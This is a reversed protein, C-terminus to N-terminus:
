QKSRLTKNIEELIRNKNLPKLIYGAPHQSLVEMIKEKDSVGTLFLVPIKATVDVSKLMQFVQLGNMQPMEYDLLILDVHEQRVIELAKEGTTACLLKFYDGIMERINRLVLTSDDVVLITQQKSKSEDAGGYEALVSQCRLMLVVNKIPRELFYFCKGDCYQRFYYWEDESCITLVPLKPWNRSIESFIEADIEGSTNQYMIMMDPKIIGIMSAITEYQTSCIQVQYRQKLCEHIWHLEGCVKGVLLIKKM